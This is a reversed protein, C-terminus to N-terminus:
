AAQEAAQPFVEEVQRGLADAIAAQTADDPILGNVIHSVRPASKGIERALWSQMRGEEALIRQLESKYRSMSLVTDIM